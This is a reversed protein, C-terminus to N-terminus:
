TTIIETPKKHLNSQSEYITIDDELLSLNVEKNEVIIGEKRRERREKKRGKKKEKKRAQKKGKHRGEKKRKKKQNCQSSAESYHQISSTLASIRRKNRM